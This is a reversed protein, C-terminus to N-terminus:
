AAEKSLARAVYRALMDIEINVMDGKRRLGLTTHSWTHPIVNVTFVDKEVANVTMSVGDLAVSGKPAILATLSEPARIKVLRSDGSPTIEVIEGAGDVHGFVFHGGLEDGLRLSPELNIKTGEEWRRISTKSLTENSIDFELWNDGKQIVTLCVGGCSVSAGQPFAALDLATEIRARWDGKKDISIVTGMDQIIGTFM